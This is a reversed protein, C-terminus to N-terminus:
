SFDAGDDIVGVNLEAGAASMRTLTPRAWAPRAAQAATPDAPRTTEHMTTEM